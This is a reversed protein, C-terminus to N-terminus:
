QDRSHRWRRYSRHHHTSAPPHPPRRILEGTDARTPCRLQFDIQSEGRRTEEAALVRLKLLRERREISWPGARLSLYLLGGLLIPFFFQAYRYSAVGL